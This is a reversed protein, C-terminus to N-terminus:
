FKPSASVPRHHVVGVLLSQVSLMMFRQNQLLEDQKAIDRSFKKDRVSQKIIGLRSSCANSSKSALIERM